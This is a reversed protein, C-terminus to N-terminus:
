YCITVTQWIKCNFNQFKELLQIKGCKTINDIDNSTITHSLHVATDSMEVLQGCAVISLTSVNCCRGKFSILVIIIYNTLKNVKTLLVHSLFIGYRDNIFCHICIDSCKTPHFVSPSVFGHYLIYKCADKTFKHARKLYFLQM